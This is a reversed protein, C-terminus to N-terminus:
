KVNTSLGFCTKLANLNVNEGAANFTMNSLRGTLMQTTQMSEFKLCEILKHQHRM